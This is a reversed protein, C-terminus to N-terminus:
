VSTKTFTAFRKVNEEKYCPSHEVALERSGEADGGGGLM